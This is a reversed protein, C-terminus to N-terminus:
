ASTKDELDKRLSVDTAVFEVVKFKKQKGNIEKKFERSQLRGYCILETGVPLSGVYEANRGRFTIPLNTFKNYLRNIRLMTDCRQPMKNTAECFYPKNVISGCVEGANVSDEFANLMIITDVFVVVILKFKKGNNNHKSYTRISGGLRVYVGEKINPFITFKNSIRIPIAYFEDKNPKKVGLNFSYISESGYQEELVPSSLVKGSLEISNM